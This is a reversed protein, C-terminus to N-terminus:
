LQKWLNEFYHRFGEDNPHCGYDAFYSIDHPVLPMGDVITTDPRGSAAERIADIVEQISTFDTEAHLNSRWIPTIVFTKIGPYAKNLNEFFGKVDRFFQARPLKRWDNTGYAVLIYDPTFSDKMLPLEPWFFEGGIGKNFEEAALADCLQAVYRSSPHMAANGYTISDGLALLKKKPKVPVVTAGDTLSLQQLAPFGNWPLHIMVTKEGEGLEFSGSFEGIPFPLKMYRQPIEQGEFNNLSGIRKGDVFVDFAMFSAGIHDDVLFSMSLVPSDTKFCLKIGSTSRSKKYFTESRKEYAAFQEDTFRYFRIGDQAQEVSVAGLTIEKVQAFTLKM